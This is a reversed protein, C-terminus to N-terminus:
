FPGLQDMWKIFWGRQYSDRVHGVERKYIELGYIRDSLIMNDENIDEPRCMGSLSVEWMENNNRVQKHAELVLTGNPRKDVVSAQISLTLREATELEGEARYLQNLRGQIRPPGDSQPSPKISKLGNLVVWDALIADYLANRRRQMEGESTMRSIENVRISIFDGIEIQRPPPVPIYTWSTNELRGAAAAAAATEPSTEYPLQYSDPFLSNNQGYSWSALCHVVLCAWSVHIIKM